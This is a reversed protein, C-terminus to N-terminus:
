TLSRWRTATSCSTTVASASATSGRRRGGSGPARDFARGLDHHIRDAVDAVTAGPELAIPEDDVAGDHRLRVRILGTLAWVADRFADLSADDLVSVRVVPLEPFAAALRAVADADAEDARTVALIAPKEIGALAVEARM